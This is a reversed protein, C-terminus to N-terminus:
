SRGRDLANELEAHFLGILPEHDGLVLAGQRRAEVMQRDLRAAAAGLGDFGLTAAVGAVRHAITGIATLAEDAQAPIAADELLIEVEASHVDALRLFRQRIGALPDRPPPAERGPGFRDTMTM